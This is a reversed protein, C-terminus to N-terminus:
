TGSRSSWRPPTAAPEPITKEHHRRVRASGEDAEAAVYGTYAETKGTERLGPNCRGQRFFPLSYNHIKFESNHIKQCDDGRAVSRRAKGPLRQRPQAALGDDLPDVLLDGAHQVIGHHGGVVLADAVGHPGEPSPDFHGGRVVPAAGVATPLGVALLAAFVVHHDVHLAVFRKDMRRLQLGHFATEVIGRGVDGREHFGEGLSVSQRGEFIGVRGLHDEVRLRPGDIKGARHNGVQPANRAFLPERAVREVLM